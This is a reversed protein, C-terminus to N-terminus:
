GYNIEDETDNLFIVVNNEKDVFLITIPKDIRYFEKENLFAIEGNIVDFSMFEDPLKNIWDKLERLIM